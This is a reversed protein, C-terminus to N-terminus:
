RCRHLLFSSTHPVVHTWRKGRVVVHLVYLLLAVHTLREVYGNGLGVQVIQAVAQSASAPGVLQRADAPASANREVVELVQGFIPAGAVVPALVFGSQILEWLERGLDVALVDVEQM